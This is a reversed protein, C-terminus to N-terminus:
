QDFSSMIESSNGVHNKGSVVCIQPFSNEPLMNEMNGPFEEKKRGEGTAARIGRGTGNPGGWRGDWWRRRRRNDLNIQTTNWAGRSHGAHWRPHQVSNKPSDPVAINGM